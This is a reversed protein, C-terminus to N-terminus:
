APRHHVAFTGVVRNVPDARSSDDLFQTGGVQRVCSVVASPLTVGPLNLVAAFVVAAIQSAEDTSAAFVDVQLDAVDLRTSHTLQGGVRDVRICPLVLDGPTTQYVRGGILVSVAADAILAGIVDQTIPPMVVAPGNSTM